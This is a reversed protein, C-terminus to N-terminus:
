GKLSVLPITLIFITKNEQSIDVRIQGNLDETLHKVYPLGVGTSPNGKEDFKTTYGPKFLFKLKNAQVGVGNDSIRIEVYNRIKTFSIHINGTSQIAEVANATLNNVLSLVTYVHLPPLLPDIISYFNISKNLGRSYKKNSQVIIDSLEALSMTDNFRRNNTLQCLGAYIRQNDKKIDHVQGAISLLEGALQKPDLRNTNNEIDEYLRYCNRTVEEANKQSKNLQIVEEYLDSILLLMHKKQRREHNAKTEAHYLQSLFFFSLIFFCRIIAIIIIKVLVAVTIVLEDGVCYNTVALEAISAWFEAFISWGAIRLAQNYRDGVKPIQFCIAYIFYYFFTPGRLPFSDALPMGYLFLDLMIRFVTVSLGVCFGSLLFSTNRLWLLFLLFVPSGFSVRFTSLDGGFPHIKPEGALPVLILMLCFVLLKQNDKM